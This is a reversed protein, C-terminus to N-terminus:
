TLRQYFSATKKLRMEGDSYYTDKNIIDIVDTKNSIRNIGQAKMLLEDYTIDSDAVAIPISRELWMIASGSKDICDAPSTVIGLDVIQAVANIEAVSLMGTKFVITSLFREAIEEINTGRNHGICVIALRKNQYIAAANAHEILKGLGSDRYISGFFGIVLWNESGELISTLGKSRYFKKKQDDTLYDTTSINSFIPLLVSEVHIQKLRKQYRVINTNIYKPKLVFVTLKITLKQLSGLFVEKLGSSKDMGCWLEHFMIQLNSNKIASRLRLIIDFPLGYRNYGFNVYQLSILDAKFENLNHKLINFRSRANLITPMRVVNIVHGDIYQTEIFMESVNRDNIAFISIEEGNALLEGALRRTYDGVGDKGPELSSCIFAIKM